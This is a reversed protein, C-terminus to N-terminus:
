ILNYVALHAVLKVLEIEMRLDHDEVVLPLGFVAIRVSMGVTPGVKAAKDILVIGASDM